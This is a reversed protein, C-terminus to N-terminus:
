SPDLISAISRVTVPGITELDKKLSAAPGVVVVAMDDLPLVRAAVRKVAEPGVGRVRKQYQNIYDGGLGYFEVNLIEAALDDPSEIRLPYLGALYNRAKDLSDAPIAGERVKRIQDLSLRITELVTENKSFTVVSVSGPSRLAEVRSRISYTLGKKVRVEEVLLSTFGGGLITNGVVLPYYDPDSRRIGVNGFRIQSQTADPKDVLLVKRGRVPAPDPVRAEPAAGRKWAGFYREVRQAAQTKDIDGVIALIANNPLVRAEYFARVDALTIAEVTRRTGQPPRGYPHSGFLWSAFAEQAVQEPDDLRSVIDALVLRKEKDFEEQRFAPNQALDALLNFGVEVDRGAFEGTVVIAESGASSELSGGVFEVEESFQQAPRSRTGRKLLRAMLAASGEKGAPDASTGARVLLRFQVLPIARRELVLVTLGNKLTTRSPAPVSFTGASPAAPPAAAGAPAVRPLLAALAAAALVSAKV